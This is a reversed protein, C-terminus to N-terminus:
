EHSHFEYLNGGLIIVDGDRLAMPRSVLMYTSKNQSGNAITWNGDADRSVVAQCTPDMLPSPMNQGNLVVSEGKFELGQESAPMLPMIVPRLEFAAHM